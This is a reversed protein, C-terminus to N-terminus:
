GDAAPRSQVTSVRGRPSERPPGGSGLAAGAPAHRDCPWPSTRAAPPEDAGRPRACSRDGSTLTSPHGRHSRDRSIACPHDRGRGRPDSALARTLGRPFVAPSGRSDMVRSRWPPCVHRWRSQPSIHGRHATVYRKGPPGDNLRGGIRLPVETGAPPAIACGAPFQIDRKLLLRCEPRLPGGPARQVAAGATAGGNPCRRNVHVSPAPLVEAWTTEQSEGVSTPPGARPRM